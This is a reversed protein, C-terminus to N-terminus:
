KLEFVSLFMQSHRIYVTTSVQAFSTQPNLMLNKFTRRLVWNFQHCFSTSYTITRSKPRTSYDQGQVIRELESKTKKYSSSNKYEEVLRDEIGKLSSSLQEQDLDENDYLKNLAVATSEGNVVDLFFDAPNGRPKSGEHSAVATQLRRSGRKAVTSWTTTTAAVIDSEDVMSEVPLDDSTSGSENPERRVLASSTNEVDKDRKM